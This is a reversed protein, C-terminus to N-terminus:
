LLIDTEYFSWDNSYKSTSNQLFLVDDYTQVFSFHALLGFCSNTILCNAHVSRAYIVKEKLTQFQFPCGFLVSM